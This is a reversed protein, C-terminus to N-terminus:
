MGTSQWVIMEQGLGELPDKLSIKVLAMMGWFKVCVLLKGLWLILIDDSNYNSNFKIQFTM